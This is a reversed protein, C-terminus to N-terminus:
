PQVPESRLLHAAAHQLAEDVSVCPIVGPIQPAEGLALVLHGFRLGFSIESMTGYGGGVAILVPCSQAIIANRAEGIGSALPISIYPNATRWDGAPLLGIPDGGAESHGKASAQMVGGRGGCLLQLGHLALAAGLAEATACEAESADRPGIVGVPVKRSLGSLKRLAACPDVPQCDEPLEQPASEWQWLWPDFCLAKGAYLTQDQESWSLAQPSTTM